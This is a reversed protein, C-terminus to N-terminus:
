KLWGECARQGDLNRDYEGIRYWLSPEGWHRLSDPVYRDKHEILCYWAGTSSGTPYSKYNWDPGFLIDTLLFTTLRFLPLEAWSNIL